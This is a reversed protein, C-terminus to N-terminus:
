GRSKFELRKSIVDRWRVRKHAIKETSMKKAGFKKIPAHGHLPKVEIALSVMLTAYCM